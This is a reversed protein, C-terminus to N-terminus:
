VNYSEEIDSINKLPNLLNLQNKNLKIFFTGYNKFYDEIKVNNKLLYTQVRNFDKNNQEKLTVVLNVAHEM